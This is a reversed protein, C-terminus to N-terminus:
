RKLRSRIALVALGLLVPEALRSAMEIYAGSTTLHQGSSRFAVSNVVVRLARESREMSIRRLLPGSPQSVKVKETTETFTRGNFTGHSITAPAQSPIGWLILATLTTTMSVALWALARGARLGYGSVLWYLSLLLRESRPRSPDNRRMEMEGYYFDAADPENKSDELSKRLQRYVATLAAPSHTNSASGGVWGHSRSGAARWIQEELVVRRPSWRTIRWGDIHIGTPARGFKCEGELRLQDLHMAGGFNCGSLDVDNLLLQGADVGRLSTVRAAPEPEGLLSSDDLVAAEGTTFQETASSLIISSSFVAHSMDVDAHRIRLLGTSAWHTQHFSVSRAALEIIVAKSFSTGNLILSGRCLMPGFRTVEEFKTRVFHAHSDFKSGRFSVSKMFSTETFYSAGEFHTYGFHANNLFSSQSFMGRGFKARGFSVEGHFTVWQFTADSFSASKFDAHSHFTSKTFSTLLSFESGTFDTSRWFRAEHFKGRGKIAIQAFTSRAKFESHKFNAASEFKVGQFAATDDFCTHSFHANGKITSNAFVADRHFEASAFQCDDDFHARSFEAVGNFISRSFNSAGHFHASHFRADGDFQISEFLTSDHFTCWSFRATGFNPRGSSPDTVAILLRRLLDGDFVTGSHDVNSGHSLTRLYADKEAEALHTLCAEYPEM